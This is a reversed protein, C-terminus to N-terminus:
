NSPYESSEVAQRASRHASPRPTLTRALERVHGANRAIEDLYPRVMRGLGTLAISPKRDFLAGGLERELASIANSLSPQSVGCRRRPIELRRFEFRGRSWEVRMLLQIHALSYKLLGQRLLLQRSPYPPV